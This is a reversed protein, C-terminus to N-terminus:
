PNPTGEFFQEYILQAVYHNFGVSAHQDFSSVVRDEIAWAEAADFLKLVDPHGSDVFVQGVRDVYAISQYPEFMNPFIVVILRADISDVYNIFTQLEARHIDWVVYNDYQAYNWDWQISGLNGADRSYFFRWYTFNAFASEALLGSPPIMSIRPDLGLSLAADEIDNLFYQLIVVNPRTVPYAQLNALQEPTSTGIEGVNMVAYSDGLLTGLVNPFRDTPNETGLGATFSDGVVLVTTRGEYDQAQWERDRYGLSNTQWYRSMWNQCSRTVCYGMTDAYIYDFYIEAGGVLLGITVYSVLLGRAINRPRTAQRRSALVILILGLLSYGLLIGIM